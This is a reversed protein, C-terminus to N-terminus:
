MRAANARFKFGPHQDGFRFASPVLIGLREGDIEELVAGIQTIQRFRFPPDFRKVLHIVIGVM